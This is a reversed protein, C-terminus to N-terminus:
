ININQKPGDVTATIEAETKNKTNHGPVSKEESQKTPVSDVEVVEGGMSTAPQGGQSPSAATEAPKSNLTEANDLKASNIKM